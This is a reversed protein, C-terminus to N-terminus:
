AKKLKFHWPARDLRKLVDSSDLIEGQYEVKGEGILSLALHSLPALDGSAGLSGQQPIM